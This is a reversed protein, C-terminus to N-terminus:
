LDLQQKATESDNAQYAIVSSIQGLEVTMEETNCGCRFSCWRRSATAALALISPWPPTRAAARAAPILSVVMRRPIASRSPLHGGVPTVRLVLSHDALHVM